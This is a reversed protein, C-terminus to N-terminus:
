SVEYRDYKKRQRKKTPKPQDDPADPTVEFTVNEANEANEVNEVEENPPKLENLIDRVGRKPMKRLISLSRNIIISCYSSYILLKSQIFQYVSLEVLM